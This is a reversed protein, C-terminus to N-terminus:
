VDDFFDLPEVVLHLSNMSMVELTEAKGIIVFPVALMNEFTGLVCLDSQMKGYITSGLELM